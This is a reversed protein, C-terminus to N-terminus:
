IDRGADSLLEAIESKVCTCEAASHGRMACDSEHNMQHYREELRDLAEEDGDEALALDEGINIENADM